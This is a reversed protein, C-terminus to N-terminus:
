PQAELKEESFNKGLVWELRAMSIEYASRLEYYDFEMEYQDKLAEITSFFDVEQTEYATFSSDYTARVEPLLFNTFHNIQRKQRRLKRYADEAEYTTENEIARYQYEAAMKQAKNEELKRSQRWHAWLPINLTVSGTMFDAGRVGDGAALERQRYSFGFDFDPWYERRALRVRQKSEEIRNELALVLPRKKISENELVTKLPLKSLAFNYKLTLPFIAPRNLLTNMRIIMSEREQRLAILANELEDRFTQARFVDPGSAQGTAYRSEASRSLTRLLGRNKRIVNIKKNLRYLQFYTKKIQFRVRNMTEVMISAVSAAAAQEAKKRFRLKGPFPIKQNVSFDKGSMPTSKFGPNNLPVNTARFGIRPDELASAQPIRARAAKSRSAAARIEPNEKLASEILEELETRDDRASLPLAIFFVIFFIIISTRKQM